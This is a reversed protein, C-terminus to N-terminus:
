IRLNQVCLILKKVVMLVVNEEMYNVLHYSVNFILKYM